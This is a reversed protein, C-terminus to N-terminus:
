IRIEGLRGVVQESFLVQMRAGVETDKENADDDIGLERGGTLCRRLAAAYVDGVLGKILNLYGGQLLLNRVKKAKSKAQKKDPPMEMITDIPKWYAIEMLVIGLSYIDHSKRSGTGSLVQPHRYTDHASHPRPPDTWEGPWDPRAYEFGAIIPVDFALTGDFNTFLILNESRLGKHLWNVSHLYLLCRAIAHALTIRMTLSPMELTQLLTLLSTPRQSPPIGDPKRYVLGYREETEDNFYGLCQPTGFQEPKNRSGLLTALKQTRDRIWSSNANDEPDYKKWEVWVSMEKYVAESRTEDSGTITVENSGIPDLNSPESDVTIQEAKFDALRAISAQGSGRDPRKGMANSSNAPLDEGLTTNQTELHMALSIEKLEAVESNLQLMAMYTQQQMFQLQEMASSDLLGEISDNYGILKEISNTFKNKKVAAWQLRRPIQPAKELYSLTKSLLTNSERPFRKEFSDDEGSLKKEESSSTAPVLHDFKAHHEACEKFVAQIGLLIDIILNRNQLLTRSPEDLLEEVLGVKQGWHLLRTQEIRLRVRLHQYETPMGEADAFIQYGTHPSSSKKKPQLTKTQHTTLSAPHIGKVCGAFAQFALGAISLGIGAATIPDM